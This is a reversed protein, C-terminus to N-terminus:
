SRRKALLRYRRDLRAVAEALRELGDDNVIVDDAIALRQQRSAQAALIAEVEARALGNRAMVREIQLSEPCDVVLVRDVRERWGPREVLLPVVLLAYPAGHPLCQLRAAVRAAIAPHIIAELRQRAAADAFVKRRLAARDLEGAATLIDEGFAAVIRALTPQGPRTLERALVDTDIVPVGLAAFRGAVVSKGSGIGGTLGIVFPHTM